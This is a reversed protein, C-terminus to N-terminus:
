FKGNELFAKFAAQTPLDAELIVVRNNELIVEDTRHERLFSAIIKRAKTFDTKNSLMFVHINKEKYHCM